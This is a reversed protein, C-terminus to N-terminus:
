KLQHFLKRHISTVIPSPEQPGLSGKFKRLTGCINNVLKAKSSKYGELHVWPRKLKMFFIKLEWVPSSSSSLTTRGSVLTRIYSVWVWSRTQKVEADNAYNVRFMVYVDVLKFATHTAKYSVCDPIATNNKNFLLLNYFFFITSTLDRSLVGVQM